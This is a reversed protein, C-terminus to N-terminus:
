TLSSTFTVPTISHLTHEWIPGSRISMRGWIGGSHHEQKVM